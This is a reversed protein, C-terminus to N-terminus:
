SNKYKKENLDIWIKEEIVVKKPSFFFVKPFKLVVLTKLCLDKIELNNNLIYSLPLVLIM